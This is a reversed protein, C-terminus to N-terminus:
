LVAPRRIMRAILWCAGFVLGLPVVVSLAAAMLVGLGVFLAGLLSAGVVGVVLLALGGLLFPLAILSFVLRFPLLILFILGRILLAATGLVVGLGAVVAAVVLAMFLLVIM